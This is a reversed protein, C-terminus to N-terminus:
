AVPEEGSAEAGALTDELRTGKWRLVALGLGTTSVWFLAHALTGLAVAVEKDVGFPRLAVWTAAHYPGFFGPASPIAVAFGIWVLMSFSARIVDPGSLDLGMALIAAAFPITVCVTWLVLSHFGVWMLSRGSRLGSLGKALQRLLHEVREAFREPLLAAAGRTGLGIVREPAMRLGILFAVGLGVLGATPVVVSMPDLGTAAAGQSGLVLAALTVVCLADILREVVVTGVLATGSAQCERSLYWARVLEGIRLPFINNAMFGVATARFLAGTEISAVGETLHRWRLARIYVSWFYAPVSPIILIALNARGMDRWVNSLSIDRFSYWLTAATIALGILM